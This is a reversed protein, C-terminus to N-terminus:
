DLWFFITGYGELFGENSTKENNGVVLDRLNKKFLTFISKYLLAIPELKHWFPTYGIM